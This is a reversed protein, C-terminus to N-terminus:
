RTRCEEIRQSIQEVLANPESTENVSNTIWEAIRLLKRLCAKKRIIGAHFRVHDEDLVVGHVLASVVVYDEARNGLEDAVTIYDIPAGKERLALVVRFIRQHDSLSFDAASLGSEVVEPLLRDDEIVAGLVVREAHLNAPIM